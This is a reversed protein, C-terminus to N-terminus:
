DAGVQFSYGAPVDQTPSGDAARLTLVYTGRAPLAARRVVLTARGYADVTVPGEGVAVVRGTPGVLELREAAAPRRPLTLTLVVLDQAGGDPLRPVGPGAGRMPGAGLDLHVANSMTEPAAGPGPVAGALMVPAAAARRAARWLSVAPVAIAVAAALALAARAGAPWRSRGEEELSPPASRIADAIGELTEIEARCTACGEVHARVEGEEQESLTGNVHFPLLVNAPHDCRQGFMM